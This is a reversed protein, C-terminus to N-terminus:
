LKKYWEKILIFIVFLIYLGILVCIWIFTDSAFFEAFNWGELAGGILFLGAGLLIIVIGTIILAKNRNNM